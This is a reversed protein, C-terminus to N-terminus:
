IFIQSILTDFCPSRTPLSIHFTKSKLEKLSFQRTTKCYKGCSVKQTKSTLFILTCSSRSRPSNTKDNPQLNHDLFESITVITTVRVHAGDITSYHLPYNVDIVNLFLMKMQKKM